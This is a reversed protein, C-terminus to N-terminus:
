QHLDHQTVEGPGQGDREEDADREVTYRDSDDDMDGERGITEGEDGRTKSRDDDGDDVGEAKGGDEDNDDDGEVWTPVDAIAKSQSRSAEAREHYVAAADGGDEVTEEPM